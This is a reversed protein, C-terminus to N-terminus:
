AIAATRGALRRNWGKLRFALGMLV